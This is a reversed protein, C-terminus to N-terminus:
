STWGLAGRRGLRALAAASQQQRRSAEAALVGAGDETLRYSRRLRSDVVEESAVEVLGREALRELAGYLTGVGLRVSGCSTTEVDKLIAYGHLPGAALATLVLFSPEQLGTRPM